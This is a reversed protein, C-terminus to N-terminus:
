RVSSVVGSRTLKELIMKDISEESSAEIYAAGYKSAIDRLSNKFTTLQKKYAKMISPNLIISKDERTESDVLKVQGYYNPELEEPSLIHILIVEQKKYTLYKVAEAIGNDTFFDSLIISVGKGKFEKKTISANIDTTGELEINKLYSLARQLMLKGSLAETAKLEKNKLSNICVRDLNNLAIYSFAAALRLALTAKSPEGFNMSKSSDVFINILAEREEMFLKIFFKDFRGYANWDVRRFDDGPVYERFDSFEVSTGKVRSKRAGSAGYNASKKININLGQLINFFDGDFIKDEM